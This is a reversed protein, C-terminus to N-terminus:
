RATRTASSMPLRTDCVTESRCDSELFHIKRAAGCAAHLAFPDARSLPVPMPHATHGPAIVRNSRQLIRHGTLRIVALHRALLEPQHQLQFRTEQYPEPGTEAQHPEAKDDCAETQEQTLNRRRARHDLVPPRPHRHYVRNRACSEDHEADDH